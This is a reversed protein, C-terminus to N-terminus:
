GIKEKEDKRETVSALARAMEDPEPADMDLGWSSTIIDRSHKIRLAENIEPITWGACHLCWVTKMVSAM